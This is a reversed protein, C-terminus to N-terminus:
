DAAVFTLKRATSDAVQLTLDLRQGPVAAPIKARAVVPLDLLQVRASEGDTDTVCATFREGERGQLMVTEALDIVAREIQGSTAEAKAMAAPLRRFAEEVADPVPQGNVVALTARIVYRDALRRL